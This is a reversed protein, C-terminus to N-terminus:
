GVGVGESSFVHNKLGIGATEGNKPLLSVVRVHNNSGGACRRKPNSGFRYIFLPCDNMTCNRVESVCGGSCELCKRRITKLPTLEKM